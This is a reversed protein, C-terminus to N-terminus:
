GPLLCAPREEEAWRIIAVSANRNEIPEGPREGKHGTGAGRRSHDRLGGVSRHVIADDQDVVRVMNLAGSMHFDLVPVLQTQCKSVVLGRSDRDPNVPNPNRGPDLALNAGRPEPEPGFVGCAHAPFHRTGDRGAGIGTRACHQV